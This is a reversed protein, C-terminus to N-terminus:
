VAAFSLHPSRRLGEGGYSYGRIAQWKSLRLTVETFHRGLVARGSETTFGLPRPPCPRSTWAEKSVVTDFRESIESLTKDSNTSVLVSGGPSTVRRLESVAAHWCKGVALLERLERGNGCGIDLVMQGGDWGVFSTRWGAQRQKDVYAWIAMRARLHRDDAYASGALM